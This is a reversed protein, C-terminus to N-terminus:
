IRLPYFSHAGFTRPSGHTRGRSLAACRLLPVPVAAALLAVATGDGPVSRSASTLYPDISTLHRCEDSAADVQVGSFPAPHEHCGGASGSPIDQRAAAAEPCLFLDCFLAAFPAGSLALVLPLLLFRNM